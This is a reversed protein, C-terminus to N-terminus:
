PNVRKVDKYKQNAKRLERRLVILRFTDTETTLLQEIANFATLAQTRTTPTVPKVSNWWAIAVALDAQYKIDAQQLEFGELEKIADRMEKAQVRTVAM